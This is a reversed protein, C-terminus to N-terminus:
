YMGGAEIGGYYRETDFIDSVEMTARDMYFPVAFSEELPDSGETNGVLVSKYSEMPPHTYLPPYTNGYHDTHTHFSPLYAIPEQPIFEFNPALGYICDEELNAYPISKTQVEAGLNGRPEFLEIGEGLEHDLNERRLCIPSVGPSDISVHIYEDFFTEVAEKSQTIRADLGIRSVCVQEIRISNHFLTSLAFSNDLVMPLSDWPGEAPQMDYGNSHGGDRANEDSPNCAYPPQDQLGLHFRDWHVESPPEIELDLQEYRADEQTGFLPNCILHSFSTGYEVLPPDFELLAETKSCISCGFPEECPPM